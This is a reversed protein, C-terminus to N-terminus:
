CSYRHGSFRNTYLLMNHCGHRQLHFLGDGLQHVVELSVGGRIIVRSTCQLFIDPDGRAETRLLYLSFFRKVSKGSCGKEMEVLHKM